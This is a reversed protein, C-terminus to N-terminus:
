FLNLTLRESGTREWKRGLNLIYSESKSLLVKAGRGSVELKKSEACVRGLADYLRLAVHPEVQRDYICFVCCVCM